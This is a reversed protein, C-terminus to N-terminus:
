ENCVYGGDFKDIAGIKELNYIVDNITKASNFHGIAKFIQDPTELGQKLLSMIQKDLTEFSPALIGICKELYHGWNVAQQLIELDIESGEWAAQIMAAKLVKDTTRQLMVKHIPSYNAIREQFQREYYGMGEYAEATMEIVGDTQLCPEWDFETPAYEPEANEGRPDGLVFTMRNGFGGLIDGVTMTKQLWEITSGSLISLTPALVKIMSKASTNEIKRPNDYLTTLVGTIERAYDKKANELFVSLEDFNVLLKSDSRDLIQILGLVSNLNSTVEGEMTEIGYNMITSKRNAASAGVLCTYFNPYLKVRRETWIRRGIVHGSITLFTAYAYSYAFNSSKHFTEIFQQAKPFGEAGRFDMHNSVM